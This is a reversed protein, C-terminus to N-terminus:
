AASDLMKDVASTVQEIEKLYRAFLDNVDFAKPDSKRERIDLLQLFAGPDFGVKAALNRVSDRKSATAPEGLELLAHRFLTAFAPLSRLMLESMRAENGAAAILGQRLLIVKERLEYELQVRHFRTPIVLSSLVDDGWLVRYSSQMDLLEISFVDASRRLEEMGVILPPRNNAKAWSEIPPALKRLHDFSTEHLVCLLNTDSSEPVFDGAASSGYLVVSLLNPGAADRMQGVFDSIMKEAVM